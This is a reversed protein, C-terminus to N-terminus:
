RIENSTGQEEMMKYIVAMAETDGIQKGLETKLSWVREMHANIFQHRASGEAFGGLGRQAAEHEAAIQAMLRAVESNNNNTQM